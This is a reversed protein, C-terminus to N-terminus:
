FIRSDVSLIASEACVILALAESILLDLFSGFAFLVRGVLIESYNSHLHGASWFM